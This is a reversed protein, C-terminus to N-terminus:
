FPLARDPCRGRLASLLRRVAQGRHSLRNKTETDLEAATRNAGSVLFLPDYGFGNAGRPAELIRGEWVGEALLPRPDNAHALYVMVCIYRASRAPTPVGALRELLLANNAADSADEGAFHASDVGPAGHLADVEIGSDDAIAPLGSHLAANRAKILANEVFTLATEAAVPVGVDSQAVFAVGLDSFLAAIERLKGRNGSAVVIRPLASGTSDSM